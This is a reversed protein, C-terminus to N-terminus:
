SSFVYSDGDKRVEGRRALYDMARQENRTLWCAEVFGECERLRWRMKEVTYEFPECIEDAPRFQAMRNKRLWERDICSGLSKVIKM